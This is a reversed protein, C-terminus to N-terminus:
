DKKQAELYKKYGNEYERRVPAFIDLGLAPKDTEYTQAYHKAGPPVVVYSGPVMKFCQGDVYFDFKGAVCIAVQEYPHTHPNLEHDNECAGIACTFHDMDMAFVTRTIGKRVPEWPNDYWNGCNVESM